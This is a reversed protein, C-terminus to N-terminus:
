WSQPPLISLDVALICAKLKATVTTFYFHKLIFINKFNAWPKIIYINKKLNAGPKIIYINNNLKAGSKIIYINKYLKAWPKIIYINKYLKAWPKIIYINKYLKAWPKVIYYHLYLERTTCGKVICRLTILSYDNYKTLFIQNNFWLFKYFLELKKLSHLM